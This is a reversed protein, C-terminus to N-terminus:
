HSGWSPLCLRTSLDTERKDLEKERQDLGKEFDRLSSERQLLEKRWAEYAEFCSGDDHGGVDSYPPLVEPFGPPLTSAKDPQGLRPNSHQDLDTNSRLFKPKKKGWQM